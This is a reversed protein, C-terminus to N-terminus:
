WKTSNRSASTVRQRKQGHTLKCWREVGTARETVRPLRRLPKLASHCRSPRWFWFFVHLVGERLVEPPVRSTNWALNSFPSSYPARWWVRLQLDM